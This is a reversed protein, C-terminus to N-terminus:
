QMPKALTSVHHRRIFWGFESMCIMCYSVDYDYVWGINYKGNCAYAKRVNLNKKGVLVAEHVRGGDIIGKGDVSIEYKLLEIVGSVDSM